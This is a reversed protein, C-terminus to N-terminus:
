GTLWKGLGLVEARFSDSVDAILAPSGRHGPKSYFYATYQGEQFAERVVIEYGEGFIQYAREQTPSGPFDSATLRAGHRQAFVKLDRDLQQASAANPQTSLIVAASQTETSCAPALTLAMLLGINRM